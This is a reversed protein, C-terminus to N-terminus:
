PRTRLRDPQYSWWFGVGETYRYAWGNKAARLRVSLPPYIPPLISNAHLGTPPGDFSEPTGGEVQVRIPGAPPLGGIETPKVDLRPPFPPPPPPAKGPVVKVARKWWRPKKM